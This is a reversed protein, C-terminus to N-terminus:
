QSNKVSIDLTAQVTQLKVFLAQPIGEGLM